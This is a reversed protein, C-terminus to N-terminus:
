ASAAEGRGRRVFRHLGNRLAARLGDRRAGSQRLPVLGEIAVRTADVNRDTELYDLARSAGWAWARLAGWDEPKRPQGQNALGIIGSALGAGNDAQISTPTFLHSDGAKRWYRSAGTKRNNRRATVAHRPTTQVVAGDGRAGTRCEACSDDVSLEIDVTVQPYTASQRRTGGATETIVPTTGIKEQTTSLSKGACPQFTRPCADTCRAISTKSSRREGSM